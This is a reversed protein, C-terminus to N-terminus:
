ESNLLFGNRRERSLNAFKECIKYTEPIDAGNVTADYGPVFLEPLTLMDVGSAAAKQLATEVITVGASLDGAPSKSQYLGLKM